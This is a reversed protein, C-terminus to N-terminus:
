GREIDTTPPSVALALVWVPAAVLYRMRFLTGFNTVVYGFVVATAIALTLAFAIMPLRNGVCHRRRYLLWLMAMVSIDMIVTDADALPLFGRGGAFEVISLEKLISVPVFVVGLGLEILKLRASRSSPPANGSTATMNTAGGSLAFGVRANDLATIATSLADTPPTVPKRESTSPIWATLRALEAPSPRYYPGAGAWYAFWMLALTVSGVALAFALRRGRLTSAFATLVLALAGWVMVAYYGRIGGIAYSAATLVVLPVAVRRLRDTQRAYVLARVLASAGLCVAVVLALFFDEKLTQTSHILVVPSFSISALAVLLPKDREIGGSPKYLRTLVACVAVYFCVNLLLGAAPSIGVLRMWVALTKTYFPSSAGLPITNLGESVAVSAYRYYGRADGMLSWFGEGFQLSRFLPLNLYSIWFLGVGVVARALLGGAVIAGAAASQKTVGRVAVVLVIGVAAAVSLHVIV